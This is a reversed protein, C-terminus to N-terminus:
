DKIFALEQPINKLISYDAEAILILADIPLKGNVM